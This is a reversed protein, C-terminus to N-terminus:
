HENRRFTAQQEVHELSGSAQEDAKKKYYRGAFFLFVAFLASVVGGIVTLFALLISLAFMLVSIVILINGCVKYTKGTPKDTYTKNPPTYNLRYYSDAAATNSSKVARKNGEPIKASYSLGTGPASARVRAGAKSNLSVGGYKGGVSVGMSKKGINLKVGPAIKISRRFRLGM